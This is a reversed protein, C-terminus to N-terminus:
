KVTWAEMDWFWTSYAGWPGLVTRDTFAAINAWAYIPIFFYNDYQYQQIQTFIPKRVAPDASALTQAFLQELTADCIHYFNQGGPSDKTPIAECLFDQTSPYPDPYFGTAYDGMDYQGMALPGNDTYSGFFTGGPIHTPKFEVGIKALDSQAALAMDKRIQKTTTMFNISLKTDVGDCMGHRIGDTGLTYGAEDLLQAATTPDFPYPQLQADWSSNIWLDGPVTTKGFLLNKVISFRDIGLSIAKRVRVDKFPCFGAVDSNGIVKGSADTVASNTIGMNFFYHDFFNGPKADMHIAPELATLTPIDSETFDPSMDIDGNKLGALTTEPDPLFKIYIRDLKARGSYYNPNPLLTIHDGAVWDTIVFPGSSVKPWHIFPDSELAKHGDLIHQPLIPGGGNGWTVFLTYWPAYLEKFHLVVTTADPTDIASIKDYGGCAVCATGKDLIAKWTFAVDASTLPQGDSWKLNPKLHWTISLGDASVGGNAQTPVETALEPVFNNKDDWEGLGVMTMQGIYVSYTMATFYTIVNDSEQSFGLTISKGGTPFSIYSGDPIGNAKATADVVLKPACSALLMSAMIVLSVLLYMTRKV